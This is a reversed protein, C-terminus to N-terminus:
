SKRKSQGSFYLATGALGWVVSAGMVIYQMPTFSRSSGSARPVSETADRNTQQVSTDGVEVYVTSGHGAQRVQVEWTGPLSSDPTFTFNGQADCVSTQWPTSPDNPAYIAVQAGGMPEGSDFAAHVNVVMVTKSTAIYDLKIGHAFARPALSMLLMLLIVTITRTRAM